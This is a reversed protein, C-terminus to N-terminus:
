KSTSKSYSIVNEKAQIAQEKKQSGIYPWIKDLVDFVEDQRYCDWSHIGRSNKYVKGCNFITQFKYLLEPNKQSVSMRLYRYKDRQAKLVSTTGEGDFFGGAWALDLEM